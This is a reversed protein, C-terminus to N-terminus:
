IDFLSDINLDIGCREKVWWYLKEKNSRKVQMWKNQITPDDAISEFKKLSDMDLIWEDSGTIENLLASLGPNACRVWRRPTVGNTKNQFKTPRLEYFDKFLISTLLQSHLAAVGNVAHSGIISLNAMRISKHNGEEVLSLTSLKRWDNPYKRSIKELYIHNINFIIELHRPLLNQLLDVSWKELAEPLITHNTYAFSNYVIEWAEEYELGEVDTLIRM